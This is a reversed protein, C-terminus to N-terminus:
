RRDLVLFSFRRPRDFSQRQTEVFEDPPLPPFYTDGDIQEHIVTLYIRDALALAQRYVQGGGLIFVEDARGRLSSLAEELSGCVAAGQVSYDPQRTLIINDRGPLPHGVSEYTKRGMIVPQGRTLDDFRKLDQPLHWPLGNDKGIVRNQSMAAILTIKM